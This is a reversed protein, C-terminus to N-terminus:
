MEPQEALALKIAEIESLSREESWNEIGELIDMTTYGEALMGKIMSRNAADTLANNEFDSLQPTDEIKLTYKGVKGVTVFIEGLFNRWLKVAFVGSMEEQRIKNRCGNAANTAAKLSTYSVDIKDGVVLRSAVNFLEKGTM